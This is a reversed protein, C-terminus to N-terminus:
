KRRLKSMQKKLSQIEASQADNAKKMELLYLTLEEVKELLKIDTKNLNNGTAAMETASAVNPLHGNISIFKEVEELSMRKYSPKFVYDPWSEAGEVKVNVEKSLVGGKVILANGDLGAGNIVVGNTSNNYLYGDANKWTSEAIPNTSTTTAGGALAVLIVDGNSNVSLVKNSGGSAVTGSTSNLNAFRLGSTGSALGQGTITTAAQGLVVTNSASAVSNAGIATANSLTSSGKAKYGIYTNYAGTSNSLGANAYDYAADKGIFVNGTGTSSRGANSGIFANEQGNTNSAGSYSGMFLNENGTNNFGALSGLFLNYSGSVNSYGASAGLFLNEAGSDNLRGTNTGIFTNNGGGKNNNGSYSGLFMNGTGSTNNSGTNDGLFVNYNGALSGNGANPGLFLNNAGKIKLIKTGGIKFSSDSPININGAAEINNTINLPQGTPATITQGIASLCIINSIVGLLLKRKM